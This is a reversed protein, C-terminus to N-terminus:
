KYHIALWITQVQKDTSFVRHERNCPINIYDGPKLYVKEGNNKFVLEASGQLLIVFEDRNQNFWKNKPSKFSKPSVIRQIKINKNSILTEFLEESLNHPLNTYINPKNM